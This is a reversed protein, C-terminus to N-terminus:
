QCLLFEPLETQRIKVLVFLMFIFLSELVWIRNAEMTSQIHRISIM